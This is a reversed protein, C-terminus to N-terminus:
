GASLAKEFGCVCVPDDLPEVYKMCPISGFKSLDFKMASAGRLACNSNLKTNYAVMVCSGSEVLCGEQVYNKRCAQNYSSM